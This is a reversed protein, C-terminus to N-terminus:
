RKLIVKKQTISRRGGLDVSVSVSQGSVGRKRDRLGEPDLRTQDCQPYQGAVGGGAVTPWQSPPDLGARRARHPAHPRRTMGMERPHRARAREFEKSEGDAGPVAPYPGPSGQIVRRISISIASEITAARM